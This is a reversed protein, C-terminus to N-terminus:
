FISSLWKLYAAIFVLPKAVLVIFIM